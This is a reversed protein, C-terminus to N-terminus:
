PRRKRRGAIRASFPARLIKTWLSRRAPRDPPAGCERQARDLSEEILADHLPRYFLPWTLVAREHPSLVLEHRLLTSDEGNGLATFSHCGTFGAPGTFQFEVRRGREYHTVFYRVPGHGGEAGVGLPGNLRMAPWENRPWLRDNKGGLSDILTGVEDVPAYIQREHLNHVMNRPYRQSGENRRELLGRSIGTLGVEDPHQISM